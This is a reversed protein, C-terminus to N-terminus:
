LRKNLKSITSDNSRTLRKDLMRGPQPRFSSGRNYSPIKSLISKRSNRATQVAPNSYGGGRPELRATKANKLGASSGRSAVTKLGTPNTTGSATQRARQGAINTMRSGINRIM